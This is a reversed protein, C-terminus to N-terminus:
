NVANSTDSEMDRYGQQRAIVDLYITATEDSLVERSGGNRENIIKIYGMCQECTHLEYGPTEEIQLFSLARHDNNGCWPCSLLKFLWETDCHACRLFRKGENNDILGINAKHGCVPCHSQLWNETDIYPKASEAFVQLFPKITQSVAFEMVERSIGLRAIIGDVPGQEGKLSCTILEAFEQDTLGTIKNCDGTWVPKCSTLLELFRHCLVRATALDIVPQIDFILPKQGDWSWADPVPFAKPEAITKAFSRRIDVIGKYFQALDHPLSVAVTEKPM